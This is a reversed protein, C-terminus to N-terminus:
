GKLTKGIIGFSKQVGDKGSSKWPKFSNIAWELREATVIRDALVWDTANPTRVEQEEEQVDKIVPFHTKTLLNVVEENSKTYSGDELNLMESYVPDKALAKSLKTTTKLDKVEDCFRLWSKRKAARLTSKYEGIAIKYSTTRYVKPTNRGTLF